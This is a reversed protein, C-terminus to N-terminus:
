SGALPNLWGFFGGPGGPRRPERRTRSKLWMEAFEAATVDDHPAMAAEPDIEELPMAEWQTGAGRVLARLPQDDFAEVLVDTTATRTRHVVIRQLSFDEPVRQVLLAEMCWVILRVRNGTADRCLYDDLDDSFEVDAQLEDISLYQHETGEDDRYVFPPIPRTM